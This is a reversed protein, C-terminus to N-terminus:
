FLVHNRTMKFHHYNRCLKVNVPESGATFCSQTTPMFHVQCSICVFVHVYVCVHVHEACVCVHVHACMCVCRFLSKYQKLQLTM